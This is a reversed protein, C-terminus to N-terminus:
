LKSELRVAVRTGRRVSTGAPPTQGIAKGSGLLSPELYAATLAKVAGRATLGQVDPVVAAGDQLAVAGDELFGDEAESASAPPLSPQVAAIAFASALKGDVQPAAEKEAPKAAAVQKDALKGPSPAVGLHALAGQAIEKFAPAAVLGGYVDGKPEDIVVLIVLRPADAPVIGVFSATRKDVSYGGTNPDAKQATGTKGAVEYEDMRALPATGEKDVVLRMMKVVERATATSLVQRLKEPGRQELVAGDPDAVRSVLYPRMLQGGNAVAAFAAAIQLASASVGQGFSQTALAIQARPFPLSGKAEGSLGTGPREGFGFARQYAQLRERGLKDAIKAAGINSSVQIIRGVDLDKYGGHDHIAHKGIAFRGNECFFTSSPRVVKEELAAAVTFVKFTSGPEFQDAVAHNRLAARPSQSPDNPNFTPANALALVEGTAPDLVVAMGSSADAKAVAAALSKETLYQIAKDITLTISAGELSETAIAGDVIASRGRADRLGTISQPKGRLVRDLALELGEIGEGDISAFGLLHAALERQPFFRRPEKVFGLGSLGLGKVAAVEQASAQRKVWAFHKSANFSAELKRPDAGVAKGLDRAAKKLDALEGPDVFISDVEVSAALAVGNRDYVSGRRGPLKLQRLQQDRALASLKANEFVQLRVARYLVAGFLPVFCLALLTVRVKVGRVVRPDVTAATNSTRTM